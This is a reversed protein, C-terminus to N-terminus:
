LLSNESSGTVSILGMNRLVSFTGAGDSSKSFRSNVCMGIHQMGVIVGLIRITHLMFM